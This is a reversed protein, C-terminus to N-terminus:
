NSKRSRLVGLSFLVFCRFFFSLKTRKGEMTELDGYTNWTDGREMVQMRGFIVCCLELDQLMLFLFGNGLMMSIFIVMLLAMELLKCFVFCWGFAFCVSWSKEEGKAM